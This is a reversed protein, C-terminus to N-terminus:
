DDPNLCNGCRYRLIARTQARLEVKRLAREDLLVKAAVSKAGPRGGLTEALRQGSNEYGYPFVSPELAARLFSQDGALDWASGTTDMIDQPVRTHFLGLLHGFEHSAVNGIMQGMEEPSLQMTEFVAFSEVYIIAAEGLNTNYQDISDALGLLQDDSGGFHLTAHAGEPPPGDDSSLVTVNYPAYDERMAAVIAAKLEATAAAYDPGALAGSFPNFSLGSRGHIQVDAGAGFNLWVVQKRPAPVSLGSTRQVDLRFSGGSGGYAPAVGLYLTETDGRVIHDLPTGASILQRQLLDSESNLLVVLFSRGSYDVTQDVITWEDGLDAAGLEFLQYDGSGSVSGSIVTQTHQAQGTPLDSHTAAPSGSATAGAAAVSALTDSLSGDTPSFLEPSCGACAALGILVSHRFLRQWM